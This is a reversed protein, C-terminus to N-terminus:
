IFSNSSFNTKTLISEVAAIGFYFSKPEGHYFHNVKKAFLLYTQLLEDFVLPRTQEDVIHAVYRFAKHIHAHDFTTAEKSQKHIDCIEHVIALWNEETIIGKLGPLTYEFVNTDGLGILKEFGAVIDPWTRDNIIHKVSHIGKSFVYFLPVLYHSKGQKALKVLGPLTTQNFIDRVAPLGYAFLQYGGDAEAMEILSPWTDKNILDKVSPLSRGFFTKKVEKDHWKNSSSLYIVGDVVKKLGLEQILPKLCPLTYAIVEYKIEYDTKGALRLLEPWNDENILDAIAQIGRSFMLFSDKCDFRRVDEPGRRYSRKSDWHRVFFLALSRFRTTNFGLERLVAFRRRYQLNIAFRKAKEKGTIQEEEIARLDAKEAELEGIIQRIDEDIERVWKKKAELHNLAHIFERMAKLEEYGRANARDIANIDQLKQHRDVWFSHGEKSRLFNARKRSELLNAKKRRHIRRLLLTIRGAETKMDKLAKQADETWIYAIDERILNSVNHWYRLMWTEELTIQSIDDSEPM